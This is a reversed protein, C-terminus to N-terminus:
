KIEKKGILDVISKVGNRQLLRELPTWDTEGSEVIKKTEIASRRARLEGRAAEAINLKPNLEAIMRKVYNRLWWAELHRCEEWFLLLRRKPFCTPGFTEILATMQANFEAETILTPKAPTM